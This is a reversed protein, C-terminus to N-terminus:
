IVEDRRSPSRARKEAGVVWFTTTLRTMRTRSQTKRANAASLKRSTVLAFFM